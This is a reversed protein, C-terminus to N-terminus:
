AAGPRRALVLLAGFLMMGYGSARQMLHLKSGAFTAALRGLAAYIGIVLWEMVLFIAGVQLYGGVYDDAPVFQPLFAAFILMAKPNSAATLAERVFGQRLTLAVPAQDPSPVKASRVIRIGIWVLYAAGALKLVTFATASAGLVIGLGVGSLAIMPIFVLIRGIGAQMAFGIGRRAGHTLALLNNPGFALNLAFCAPLFIALNM